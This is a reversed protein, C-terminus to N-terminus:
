SCKYWKWAQFPVTLKATAEETLNIFLYSSQVVSNGDNNSYLGCKKELIRRYFTPPTALVYSQSSICQTLGNEVTGDPKQPHPKYV